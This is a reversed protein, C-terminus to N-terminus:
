GADTRTGIVSLAWSRMSNKTDASLTTWCRVASERLLLAAQAWAGPVRSTEACHVILRSCWSDRTMSFRSPHWEIRHCSESAEGIAERAVELGFPSVQLKSLWASARAAAEGSSPNEMAAVAAEFTSLQSM